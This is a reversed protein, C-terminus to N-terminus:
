KSRFIRRSTQLCSSNGSAVLGYSTEKTSIGIFVVRSVADPGVTGAAIDVTATYVISHKRNM